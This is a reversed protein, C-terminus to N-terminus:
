SNIVSFHTICLNRDNNTNKILLLADCNYKGINHSRCNNVARVLAVVDVVVVEVVVTRALPIKM